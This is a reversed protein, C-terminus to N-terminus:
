RPGLWAFSMPSHRSSLELGGSSGGRRRGSPFPAEGPASAFSYCARPLAIVERLLLGVWTFPGLLAKMQSGRLCRVSAAYSLARCLQWLRRPSVSIRGARGDFVLGTFEASRSPESAAHCGLGLSVLADRILHLLRRAPTPHTPAVMFTDVYVAHCV